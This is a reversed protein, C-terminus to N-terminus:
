GRVTQRRRAGRNTCCPGANARRSGANTRCPGANAGSGPGAARLRHDDHSGVLGAVKLFERRNIKKGESM